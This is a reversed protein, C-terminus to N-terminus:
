PRGREYRCAQPFAARIHRGVFGNAFSDPMTSLFRNEPGFGRPGRHTIKVDQIREGGLQALTGYVTRKHADHGRGRDLVELMCAKAVPLPVHLDYSLPEYGLGTLWGYTDRLGDAYPGRHGTRAAVLDRMLGRHLVPMGGPLPHMTYIDDNLWLFPDSVEHEDCAARMATTTNVYGAGGQKTSIHRVEDSLWAPRHGVVWVHRHPLHAAWSRLAYRLQENVAAVRVPVVLDPVDM